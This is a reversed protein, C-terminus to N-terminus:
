RRGREADALAAAHKERWQSRYENPSWTTILNADRLAAEARELQSRLAAIEPFGSKGRRSLTMHLTALETELEKIRLMGLANAGALETELQRAIYFPDAENPAQDMAEPIHGYQKAYDQWSMYVKEAADTRPTKSM